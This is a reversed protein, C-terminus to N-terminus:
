RHRGPGMRGFGVGPMGPRVRDRMESRHEDQRASREALNVTFTQPSTTVVIFAAESAASAFDNAFGALSDVGHTFTLTAVSAAGAAPDGDYFTATVTTGDSLLPRGALERPLMGRGGAPVATTALEIRRSQEGIAVTMFAAGERAEQVARAFAVESDQGYTFTITRSPAAGGEPDADFFTVEVQTGLQLPGALQAGFPRGVAGHAGAAFGGAAPPRVAPGQALATGLGAALLGAAVLAVLGKRTITSM